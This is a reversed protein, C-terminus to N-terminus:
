PRPGADTLRTSSLNMATIGSGSPATGKMFWDYSFNGSVPTGPSMAVDIQNGFWNDYTFDAGTGGYFMIGYTSTSLNTHVVKLTPSGGVHMACHTTDPQGPEVGISSYEVDATGSSIVLLDHSAQSLQTDIITVSGGAAVEVSGGAEVLYHTILQGGSAIKFGTWHPAGGSAGALVHSASTGEIDLTGDVNIAATSIVAITTGPMVTVTVGPDIVLPATVDVTGTWTANATIHGSVMTVMVPPADLAADVNGVAADQGAPNPITNNGCAALVCALAAAYRM